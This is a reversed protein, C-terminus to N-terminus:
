STTDRVISSPSLQATALVNAVFTAVIGHWFAFLLRFIRQPHHFHRFNGQKHHKTVLMRDRPWGTDMAGVCPRLGRSKELFELLVRSVVVWDM